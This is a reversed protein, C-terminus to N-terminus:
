FNSIKNFRYFNDLIGSLVNLLFYIFFDLLQVLGSFKSAQNQTIRLISSGFIRKQPLSQYSSQTELWNQSKWLIKQNGLM